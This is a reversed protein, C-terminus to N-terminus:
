PEIGLAKHLEAVDIEGEQFTKSVEKQKAAVKMEALPSAATAAFESKKARGGYQPVVIKQTTDRIVSPQALLELSVDRVKALDRQSIQGSLLMLVADLFNYQFAVQATYLRTRFWDMREITVVKNREHVPFPLDGVIEAYLLAGLSWADSFSNPGYGQGLWIEPPIYGPTGAVLTTDVIEGNFRASGFDVIHFQSEGPNGIERLVNARKIDNHFINERRLVLLDDALDGACRVIDRPHMIGFDRERADAYRVNTDGLCVGSKMEMLTRLYLDGGAFFLEHDRGIEPCFLRQVYREGLGQRALYDLVKVERFANEIRFREKKVSVDYMQGDCVLGEPMLMYEEVPRMRHDDSVDKLIPQVKLLVDKGTAGSYGESFVVGMSEWLKPKQYFRLREPVEGLQSCRVLKEYLSERNAESMSKLLLGRNIFRESKLSSYLLM